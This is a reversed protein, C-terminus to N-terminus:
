LALEDALLYRVGVADAGALGLHPLFHDGDGPVAADGLLDRLVDGDARRLYDRALGLPHDAMADRHGLRARDGAHDGAADLLFYRGLRRAAQRRVVVLGLVVLGAAVLRITRDLSHRRPPSRPRVRVCRRPPKKLKTCDSSSSRRPLGDSAIMGSQKAAARVAM